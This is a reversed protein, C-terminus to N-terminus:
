ATLSLLGIKVQEEHLFDEPATPAATAGCSAGSSIVKKIWRRFQAMAPSQWSDARMSLVYAGLTVEQAPTPPPVLNVLRGSRLDDGLLFPNALAVGQGRRAAEIAVDAHWMRPGKITGTVHVQHAAFWARWQSDSEEHLLPAELLSAATRSAGLRAAGDPSAVAYVVPRALEFSRVGGRVVAASFSKSGAVYRIDIDAEYRAFDPSHDTPHIEIEIDPSTSQFSALHRTLWQSAFGPVSWIQLRQEQARVALEAAAEAIELLAAAIRSHFRAGHETLCIGGRIREVLRVGAWEELSRIHRSVVAHDLKLSQAARRVGHLAGVAEFARLTAFPPLPKRDQRDLDPRSM